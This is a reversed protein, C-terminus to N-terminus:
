AAKISLARQHTPLVMVRSLRSTPSESDYDLAKTDLWIVGKMNLGSRNVFEDHFEREIGDLEKQALLTQGCENCIEPLPVVYIDPQETM